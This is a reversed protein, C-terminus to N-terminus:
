ATSEPHRALARATALAIAAAQRSIVPEIAEVDKLFRLAADIGPPTSKYQETNWTQLLAYFASELDYTGDERRHNQLNIAIGM